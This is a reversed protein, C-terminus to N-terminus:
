LGLKEDCEPTEIRLEEKDYKKEAINAADASSPEPVGYRLSTTRLQEVIERLASSISGNTESVSLASKWAAELEMKIGIKRDDECQDGPPAYALEDIWALNYRVGTQGEEDYLIPLLNEDCTAPDMTAAENNMSIRVKELAAHHAALSAPSTIAIADMATLQAAIDADDRQQSCRAECVSPIMVIIGVGCFFMLAKLM